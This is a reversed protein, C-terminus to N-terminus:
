SLLGDFPEFAMPRGKANVAVGIFKSKVMLQDDTKRYLNQVFAYKIRSERVLEVTIYFDDGPKLPAKYELEAKLVMLDIKNAALEAFNVNISHLFEHRAHEMYHQYIANNVVGQLDCEYDRVKLEISFM